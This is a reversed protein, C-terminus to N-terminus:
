ATGGSLVCVRNRGEAKARYVERDALALGAEGLPDDPQSAAVGFSATVTLSRGQWHLPQAQLTGRMREAVQSAAALSTHPLVACFEEGGIRSLLDLERLCARLVRVAHQLAADGAAHGFEDNIRKFHDLDILVLGHAHGRARLAQLTQLEADLARRNLAGTLADRRTLHEIRTILRWILLAALSLSIAMSIILWAWGMLASAQGGQVFVPELDPSWALSLARAGSVAALVGHPLALLGTVLPALGPGAGSIIDRASLLALLTMAISAAIMPSPPSGWASLLAIALAGAGSILGIDRWRQQLRLMRRVSLALLSLTALSALEVFPGAPWGVTCDNCRLALIRTLHAAAMLWSAVPAMRFLGAILCWALAAFGNFVANVLLLTSADM